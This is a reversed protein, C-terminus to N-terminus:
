AALLKYKMMYQTNTNTKAVEHERTIGKQGSLTSIVILHFKPKKNTQKKYKYM